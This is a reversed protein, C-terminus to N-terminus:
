SLELEELLEYCNAGKRNEGLQQAEPARRLATHSMQRSGLAHGLAGLSSTRMGRMRQCQGNPWSTLERHSGSILGHHEAGMRWQQEYGTPPECGVLHRCVPNACSTM